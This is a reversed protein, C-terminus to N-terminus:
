LYDLCVLFSLIRAFHGLNRWTTPSHSLMGVQALGVRNRMIVVDHYSCGEVPKFILQAEFSGEGTVAFVEVM